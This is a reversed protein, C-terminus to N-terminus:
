RRLSEPRRPTSALSPGSRRKSPLSRAPAMANARPSELLLHGASESLTGNTPSGRTEAGVDLLAQHCPCLDGVGDMGPSGETGANASHTWFSPRWSSLSTSMVYGLSLSLVALRHLDPGPLRWPGRYSAGSTPRSGPTSASRRCRLLATAVPWDTVPSHLRCRRLAPGGFPPVLLLRARRALAFAVSLM